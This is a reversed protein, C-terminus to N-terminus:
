DNRVEIAGFINIIENEIPHLDKNQDIYKDNSTSDSSLNNDDAQIKVQELEVKVSFNLDFNKSLISELLKSKGGIFDAHFANNYKLILM